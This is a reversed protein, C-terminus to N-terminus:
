LATAAESGKLMLRKGVTGQVAKVARATDNVGCAERHTYRFDFEALYRHLHHERCHQYVGRMGRKFISFYGEVTNTYAKGVVYEDLQHRVISHDAFHPKLSHRYISHDDTMVHAEKAVNAKVIPIIEDASTREFVMSRAEGGRKVLSLVKMKHGVGGRPTSHGAKQGIYTEDIEVVEGEGGM